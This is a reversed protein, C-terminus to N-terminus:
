RWRPRRGGPAPKAAVTPKTAPAAVAPAIVDPNPSTSKQSSIIAAQAPGAPAPPTTPKTLRRGKAKWAHLAAYGYVACDLAENRKHEPLDWVIRPHGHITKTTPVEAVLQELYADDGLHAAIHIMGPGALTGAAAAAVSAKLRAYIHAKATDQGILFFEAKRFAAKSPKKPWIRKAGNSGKVGFIGRHGRTLVFEHARNALYGTDICVVRITVLEGAETLWERALYVDLDAWVQDGSPDGRIVAHDLHWCEEGWGWGFVVVELRDHQVDVGATLVVVRAPVVPVGDEVQLDLRLTALQHHAVRTEHHVDYTRALINNFFVRTKGPNGKARQWRDAIEHWRLWPSYLGNSWYGVVRSAPHEAIWEGAANMERKHGEGFANDCRQCRYVVQKVNDAPWWLRDFELLIRHGCRPCPVWWQRRDSALYAPEVKSVSTNGPTSAAIIKRWRTFTITRNKALEYLDGEGRDGVGVGAAMRDWEDIAIVGAPKSATGAPSNGGLIDLTVGDGFTKTHNTNGPERSKAEVLLGDLARCDDLIPNLRSIVYRRAADIDPQYFLGPTPRCAIVYAFFCNLMESAGWQSPKQIVIEEVPSDASLHLM